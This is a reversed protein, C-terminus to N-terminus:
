NVSGTCPSKKTIFLASEAMHKDQWMLWGPWNAAAEACMDVATEALVAVFVPM